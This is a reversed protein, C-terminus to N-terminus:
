VKRGSFLKKAFLKFHLVAVVSAELRQSAPAFLSYSIYKLAPTSPTNVSSGPKPRLATSAYKFALGDTFYFRM